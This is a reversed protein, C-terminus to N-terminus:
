GNFVKKWIPFTLALGAAIVLWKATDGIDGMISQEEAEIAKRLIDPPITKSTVGSILRSINNQEKVYGVAWIAGGIGFAAAIAIGAIVIVAIGLGNPKEANAGLKAVFTEAKDYFASRRSSYAGSETKPMFNPKVTEWLRPFQSFWESVTNIQGQSMLGNEVAIKFTAYDRIAQNLVDPFTHVMSVIQEDQTPGFPFGKM